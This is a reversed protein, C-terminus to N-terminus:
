AWSRDPSMQALNNKNNLHGSIAIASMNQELNKLFGCQSLYVDSLILNENWIM